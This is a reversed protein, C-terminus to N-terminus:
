IFTTSEESKISSPIHRLSLFQRVSIDNRTLMRSIKTHYVSKDVCQLHEKTLQELDPMSRQLEVGLM